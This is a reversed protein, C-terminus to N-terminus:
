RRAPKFDTKHLKNNEVLEKRVNDLIGNIFQGSQATSYEKGIDIYENITVKPPITEFYLLEAIGMRLILMDLIAIRDAEWNKLKPVIYELLHEKKDTVTVFLDRAFKWKEDGLFVDPKYSQPKQIFANVLQQQMAADDSWNTFQEELLLDVNEDPLVFDNFIFSMIAKESAPNRGEEATYAKYEQTETLENYLKRVLENDDGIRPKFKEIAKIYNENEVIQWLTQNGALKVNVNLDAHTTINRASRNRSDTEAYKAIATVLHILFIFLEETQDFQTKLSKIPDAKAPTNEMSEIVYLLQM